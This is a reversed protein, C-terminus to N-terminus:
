LGLSDAIEAKSLSRDKNKNFQDFNKKAAEIDSEGTLYEDLTLSGDNNKDKAKLVEDVANRKKERAAKEEQKEKERQKAKENGKNGGGQADAAAISLVLGLVAVLAQKM